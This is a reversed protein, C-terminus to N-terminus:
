LAFLLRNKEIMFTESCNTDYKSFMIWRQFYMLDKTIKYVSYWNFLLVLLKKKMKKIKLDSWILKLDARHLGSRPGRVLSPEHLNMKQSAIVKFKLVKEELLRFFTSIQTFYQSIGCFIIIILVSPEHNLKKQCKYKLNLDDSFQKL